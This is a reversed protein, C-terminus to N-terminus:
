MELKTDCSNSDTVSQPGKITNQTPRVPQVYRISGKERPKFGDEGPVTATRVPGLSMVQPRIIESLQVRTKIVEYFDEVVNVAFPHEPVFVDPSMDKSSLSLVVSFPFVLKPLSRRGVPCSIALGNMEVLSQPLDSEAHTSFLKM